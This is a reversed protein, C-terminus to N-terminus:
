KKLQTTNKKNNSYKNVFENELKELLEPVIDKNM